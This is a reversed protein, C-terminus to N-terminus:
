TDSIRKPAQDSYCTSQLHSYRRHAFM